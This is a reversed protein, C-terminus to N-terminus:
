TRAPPKSVIVHLRYRNKYDLFYYLGPTRCAQLSDILQPHHSDPSASLLGRAGNSALGREHLGSFVM